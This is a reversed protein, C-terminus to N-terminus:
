ADGGKGWWMIPIETENKPTKAEKEINDIRNTLNESYEEKDIVGNIYLMELLSDVIAAYFVLTTNILKIEDVVKKDDM